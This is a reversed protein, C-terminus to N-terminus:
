ILLDEYAFWKILEKYSIAKDIIYFAEYYGKKQSFIARQANLGLSAHIYIEPKGYLSFHYNLILKKKDEIFSSIDILCNFRITSYIEYFALKIKEFREKVKLSVKATAIHDAHYDMPSPCFIIDPAISSIIMSLKEFLLSENSRVDGDPLNMFFVESSNLIMGANKAEQVRKDLVSQSREGYLKEGNTVFTIYSKAGKQKLLLATGSCGMAEDDPHPAIILFTNVNNLEHNM